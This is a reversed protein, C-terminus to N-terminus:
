PVDGQGDGQELDHVRQALKCIISKYTLVANAYAVKECVNITIYVLCLALMAKWSQWAIGAAVLIAAFCLGAVVVIFRRRKTVGADGSHELIYKELATLELRSM